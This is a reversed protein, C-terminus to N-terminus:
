VYRYVKDFCILNGNNKTSVEAAEAYGGKSLVAFPLFGAEDLRKARFLTVILTSCCKEVDVTEDQFGVYGVGRFEFDLM